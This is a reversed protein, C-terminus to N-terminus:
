PSIGNARNRLVCGMACGVQTSICISNREQYRMLVTEVALGDQLQFLNKETNLDPSSIMKIPRIAEFQLDRYLFDRLKLPLVTFEEPSLWLNKYLGKWIQESRYADEGWKSTLNLIDSAILDYVLPKSNSM